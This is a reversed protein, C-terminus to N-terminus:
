WTRGALVWLQRSSRGRGRGHGARAGEGGMGRGHGTLAGKGGSGATAPVPAAGAGKRSRQGLAGDHGRRRGLSGNGPGESSGGCAWIQQVRGVRDLTLLRIHHPQYAPDAQLHSFQCYSKEFAVTTSGFPSEVTREFCSKCFDCSVIAKVFAV